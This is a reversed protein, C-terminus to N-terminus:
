RPVEELVSRTIVEAHNDVERPDRSVTLAGIPLTGRVAVAPRPDRTDLEDLAVAPPARDGEIVTVAGISAEPHALLRRGVGREATYVAVRDQDRAFRLTTEKEAPTLRPDERRFAEIAGVRADSASEVGEPSNSPTM